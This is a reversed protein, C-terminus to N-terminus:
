NVLKNITDDLSLGFCCQELELSLNVLVAALSARISCFGVRKGMLQICRVTELLQDLDRQDILELNTCDFVIANIQRQQHLASLLSERIQRAYDGGFDDPLLVTACGMTIQFQALTM